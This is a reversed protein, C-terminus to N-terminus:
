KRPMIRLIIFAAIVFLVNAIILIPNKLLFTLFDTTPVGSLDVSVTYNSALYAILLAEPLLFLCLVITLKTRLKM